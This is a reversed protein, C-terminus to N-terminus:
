HAIRFLTGTAGTVHRQIDSGESRMGFHHAIGTIVFRGIRQLLNQTRGTHLTRKLTHRIGTGHGLQADDTAM